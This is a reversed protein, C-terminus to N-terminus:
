KDEKRVKDNLSNVSNAIDDLERALDENYAKGEPSNCWEHHEHEDEVYEVIADFEAQSLGNDLDFDLLKALGDVFDIGSFMVRYDRCYRWYNIHQLFVLSKKAMAKFEEPSMSLGCEETRKKREAVQKDFASLEEKSEEM